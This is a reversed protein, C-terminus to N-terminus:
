WLVGLLIGSSRLDWWIHAMKFVNTTALFTVEFSCSMWSSASSL